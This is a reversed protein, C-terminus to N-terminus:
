WPQLNGASDFSLPFAPGTQELTGLLNETVAMQALDLTNRIWLATVDEPRERGVMGSLLALAERDNAARYPARIVTLNSAAQANVLTTPWDIQSYLRESIMDAMGIGIANGYSKPSLGRLYIKLIKPAWPWSNVDGYPHRNVIKSDMGTGSFQKGVEDVILLDADCPLRAMWSRALQLLEMELAEIGPAREAAIRGIQHHADEVVGLGGLIKGTKLVHRAVSQVVQGLGLRIAARHYNTAGVVKGLGIAAMKMVGSEIPAEFTTHWKVRNILFVGASEFAARDMYTAINEPTPGLDVTEISSVIPCDVTAESIGLHALVARQGENTGGGHSGMAPIVFPALKLAHFHKVTARVLEPLCAVGRSGVGIAVPSNPPLGSGIQKAHLEALVAASVDALAHSPLHQRIPVFRPVM